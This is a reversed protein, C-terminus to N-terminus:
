YAPQGWRLDETVAGAGLTNAAVELILDRLALCGTRAAEPFGDFVEVVPEPIAANM